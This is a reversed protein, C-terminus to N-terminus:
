PIRVDVTQTSPIARGGSRAPTFRWSRVAALLPGDYSAAGSRAVRASAVRGHEDITLELLTHSGRPTPFPSPVRRPRPRELARAPEFSRWSEQPLSAPDAITPAIDGTTGPSQRRSRFASRAVPGPARQRPRTLRGAPAAQRTRPSSVVVNAREDAPEGALQADLPEVSPQPVTRGSVIAPRTRPPIPDLSARGVQRVAAEVTLLGIIM